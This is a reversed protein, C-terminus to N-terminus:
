IEGISEIAICILKTQKIDIIIWLHIFVDSGELRNHLWRVGGRFSSSAGGVVGRSPFRQCGLRLPVGFHM